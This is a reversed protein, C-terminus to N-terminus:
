HVLLPRASASEPHSAASFAGAPATLAGLGGGSGAEDGLWGSKKMKLWDPSRGSRYASDRPRSGTLPKPANLLACSLPWGPRM